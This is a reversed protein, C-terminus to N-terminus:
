RRHHSSDSRGGSGGLPRGNVDEVEITAVALCVSLVGWPPGGDVDEVVETTSEINRLMSPPRERVNLEPVELPGAMLTKLKPPPCEGVELESVEQSGATSQRTFNLIVLRPV